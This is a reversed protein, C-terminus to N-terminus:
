SIAQVYQKEHKDNPWCCALLKFMPACNDYLFGTHNTNVTVTISIAMLSFLDFENVTITISSTWYSVCYYHVIQLLFM